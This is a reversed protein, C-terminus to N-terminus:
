DGKPLKGDKTKSVHNAQISCDTSYTTRVPEILCSKSASPAEAEGSRNLHYSKSGSQWPILFATAREVPPSGSV